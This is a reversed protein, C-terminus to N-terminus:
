AQNRGRIKNRISTPGAVRALQENMRGLAENANRIAREQGESRVVPKKPFGKKDNRGIWGKATLKDKISKARRVVADFGEGEQKRWNKMAGRSLADLTGEDPRAFDLNEVIWCFTKMGWDSGRIASVYATKFLELAAIVRTGEDMSDWRIASVGRGSAMAVDFFSDGLLGVVIKRASRRVGGNWDVAAASVMKQIKRSTLFMAKGEGGLESLLELILEQKTEHGHQLGAELHILMGRVEKQSCANYIRVLLPVAANKAGERTKPYALMCNGAALIVENSLHFRESTSFEVGAKLFEEMAAFFLNVKGFEMARGGQKELRKGMELLHLRRTEPSFDKPSTAIAIPNSFHPMDATSGEGFDM